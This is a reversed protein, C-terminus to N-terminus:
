FYSSIRSMATSLLYVCAGLAHNSADCSGILRVEKANEIGVFRHWTVDGIRDFESAWATAKDIISKPLNSDWGKVTECAESVIEKGKLVYPSLLGMPDYISPVLKWLHRKTKLKKDVLTKVKEPNVHIIDTETNWCMGFVKEHVPPVRGELEGFIKRAEPHNSTWDRFNMGALKFFETYFDKRKFVDKLFMESWVSDDVYLSSIFIQRTKEDIQKESMNKYLLQWFCLLAGSFATPASDFGVGLTTTTFHNTM